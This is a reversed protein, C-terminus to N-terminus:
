NGTQQEIYLKMKANRPDAVTTQYDTAQDATLVAKIKEDNEISMKLYAKALVGVSKNTKKADAVLSDKSKSYAAYVIKLKAAQGDTIGTVQAKLAEVQQDPTAATSGQAFSVTSIGVVFACVFLLKKM